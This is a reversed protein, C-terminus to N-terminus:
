RLSNMSKVLKDDKRIFHFAMATFVIALLVAIFAAGHSVVTEGGAKEELYLIKSFAIVIWALGLVSTVLCLKKQVNRNKFLFINAVSLLVALVAVLLLWVYEDVQFVGDAMITGFTEEATAVPLFFVAFYGMGAILLFISQIRQIM